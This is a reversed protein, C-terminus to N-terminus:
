LHLAVRLGAEVQIMLPRPLTGIRQSLRLKNVTAVQSVNVVSEKPLGGEGRRCLVNGPASALRLNSTITLVVVTHIRSENLEDCQVILVPRRYGRESGEPAPLSAWWLDGRRIV